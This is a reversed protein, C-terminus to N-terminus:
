EVYREILNVNLSEYNFETHEAPESGKKLVSSHKRLIVMTLWYGLSTVIMTSILNIMFMPIFKSIFYGLITWAIAVWNFGNWYWYREDRIFLAPVDVRGKKLIVYHVVLVGAIPAFVNGMESMFGNYGNVMQPFLSLLVGFFSCILTTWFRGVRTMINSLSLGGTYLNLVNITWNDLIVYLLILLLIITSGGSVKTMVEFPNNSKGLTAAVAYAGIFVAISQGIIAATITGIWMDVRTKSYRCFDAADTCMSFWAAAASNIWVAMIMWNWGEKGAYSFVASPAFSDKPYTSLLYFIVITFLIKLPFAFRSLIKLSNYGFTAIFVQFIAFILSVVVLNVEYGLLSKLVATIGLAGSITQFAFWYISSLTRILSPVWKSGRIGYAMRTGVQGPIGYDVGLTAVIIYVGFALTIGVAQATLVAGFSIGSAVALGGVVITGPNVLFNVVMLFLDWWRVTKLEPPVAEIGFQEVGKPQRYRKALSEELKIEVM